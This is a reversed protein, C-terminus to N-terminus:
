LEELKKYLLYTEEIIKLQKQPSYFRWFFRKECSRIAMRLLKNNLDRYVFKIQLDNISDREDMLSEYEEDTLDDLEDFENFFNDVDERYEDNDEYNFRRM